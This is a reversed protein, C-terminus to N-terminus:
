AEVWSVIRSLDPRPRDAGDEPPTSYVHPDLRVNAWGATPTLGEAEVILLPHEEDGGIFANM